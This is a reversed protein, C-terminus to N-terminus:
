QLSGETSRFLPFLKGMPRAVSKYQADTPDILRIQKDESENKRIKRRFIESRFLDIRFTM